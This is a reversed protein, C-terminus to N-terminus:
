PKFFNLLEAETDEDFYLVDEVIGNNLLFLQPVQGGTIASMHEKEMMRYPFHISNSTNYFWNVNIERGSFFVLFNETLSYQRALASIQKSGRRCHNCKMSFFSVAKKGELANFDPTSLFQFYITDANEGFREIPSKFDAGILENQGPRILFYTFAALVLLAVVIFFYRSYQRM